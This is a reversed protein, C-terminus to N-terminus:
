EKNFVIAVASAAPLKLQVKGAIVKGIKNFSTKECGLQVKLKITNWEAPVEVANFEVTQEGDSTNVAFLAIEGDPSRWMALSVADCSSLPDANSLVHWKDVTVQGPEGLLKPPRLMTGYSLFKTHNARLRVIQKFFALRESTGIQNDFMCRGTQYGALFRSTVKARMAEISDIKEVRAGGLVAYGSYVAPILPIENSQVYFWALQVELLGIYPEVFFESELGHGPLERRMQKLLDLSAQQWWCGGIGLPHGHSKDYCDRIQNVYVDLYTADAGCDATYGVVKMGADQFSKTTPCIWIAPVLAFSDEHPEGNMKRCTHSMNEESFGPHVRDWESFQVYPEVSYGGDVWKKFQAPVEPRATSHPMDDDFIEENWGYIQIAYPIDKGITEVLWKVHEAANMTRGGPFGPYSAWSPRIWHAAEVMRKNIDDRTYLAGKRCWPQSTAWKRYRLAADYWDGAVPGVVNPYSQIFKNGKIATNEVYWGIRLSNAPNVYVKKTSATPDHSAIYLTSEPGFSVSFFQMALGSSPYTGYVVGGGRNMIGGAGWASAIDHEVSTYGMGDLVPVALQVLGVDAPANVTSAKWYTLNDGAYLECSAQADIAGAWGPISIQKFRLTVVLKDDEIDVDAACDAAGGSVAWRLQSLDPGKVSPFFQTVPAEGVGASYTVVQMKVINTAANPRGIMEMGNRHDYMSKLAFKEAAGGFKLGVIGNSVWLGDDDKRVWFSGTKKFTRLEKAVREVAAAVVKSKDGAAAMADRVAVDAVWSALPRAQPDAIVARCSKIEEFSKMATAPAWPSLVRRVKRESEKQRTIDDVDAGIGPVVDGSMINAGSDFDKMYRDYLEDLTGKFLYIRCKFKQEERVKLKGWTINQHICSTPEHLNYSMGNARNSAIGLIWKGDKSVKAMLKADARRNYHQHDEPPNIMFSGTQRPEFADGEIQNLTVFKGDRHIFTRQGNPDHFKEAAGCTVDFMWYDVRPWPKDFTNMIHAKIDVTDKGNSLWGWFHRLHPRKIHEPADWRYMWTTDSQRIWSVDEAVVATQTNVYEPLRIKFVEDQLDSHRMLVFSTGKVSDLVKEPCQLLVDKVPQIEIGGWALTTCISVVIITLVTKIKAM